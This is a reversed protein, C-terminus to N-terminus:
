CRRSFVTAHCPRIYTSCEIKSYGHTLRSIDFAYLKENPFNEASNEDTLTRCLKGYQVDDTVKTSSKIEM